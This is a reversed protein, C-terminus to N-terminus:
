PAAGAGYGSPRAGMGQLGRGMGQPSVFIFCLPYSKRGDDHKYCYSYAIYRPQHEPLEQALEELSIDQPMPLLYVLVQFM